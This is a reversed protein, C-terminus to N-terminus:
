KDHNRKRTRRTTCETGVFDPGQGFIAVVGVEATMADDWLPSKLVTM